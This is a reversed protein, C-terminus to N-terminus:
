GHVAGGGSRAKLFCWGRKACVKELTGAQDDDFVVVDSYDGSCQWQSIIQEKFGATDSYSDNPRMVLVGRRFGSQELWEQTVKRWREERSTLFMVRGQQGFALANVVATMGIVPKDNALEIPNMMKAVWSRYASKDALDPEPGVRQLRESVDAITADIDIIFLTAM